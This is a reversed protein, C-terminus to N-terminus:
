FHLVIKGSASELLPSVLGPLQKFTPVKFWMSKDHGVIESLQGENAGDVGVAVVKAIKRLAASAATISTHSKGDTVVICINDYDPRDGPGRFCGNAGLLLGRDTKTSANLHVIDNWAGAIAADQTTYKNLPASLQAVHSYTVYGIQSKTPGIDLARVIDQVFHRLDIWEDPFVSISTDIVFCVDM